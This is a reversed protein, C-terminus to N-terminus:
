RASARIFDIEAQDFPTGDARFIDHFWLPPEPIPEGPKVFQGRQRLSEIQAVTEWNFHTQSKGAVLGWNFCGVGHRKFIPLSFQFTTGRERAMYETCILPRGGGAQMHRAIIPELQPADYCHFTLIDSREFNMAINREGISGDMCATLPQSPRVAQAWDWVLALLENSRDGYSNQGPENYVDWMMIRDDDAFRKLVGQVYDRLRNTQAAPATGAHFQLLLEQGPSQKWGSNHVGIVPLPQPGAVPDPRHCDDFLTVLTKMGRGTAIRLFDDIRAAFGAEDDRWILDHLYVRVANFGLGQAWGLERDITAGDYTGGQWMELQNIASSPLFNCGIRWPENSYWQQAREISWRDM